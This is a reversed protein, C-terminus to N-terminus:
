GLGVGWPGCLTPAVLTSPPPPPLPVPPLSSPLSNPPPCLRLPSANLFKSTSSSPACSANSVASSAVPRLPLCFPPPPLPLPVLLSLPSPPLSLSLPLFSPSVFSSPVSPRLSPPHSLTFLSRIGSLHISTPLNSPLSLLSSRSRFSCSQWRVQSGYGHSHLRRIDKELCSNWESRM